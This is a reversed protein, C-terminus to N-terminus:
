PKVIIVTSGGDNCYVGVEGGHRCHDGSDQNYCYYGEWKYTCGMPYGSRTSEEAAMLALDDLSINGSHKSAQVKLLTLGVIFFVSATWFIKKKM